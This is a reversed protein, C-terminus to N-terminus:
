SLRLVVVTFRRHKVLHILICGSYGQRHSCRGDDASVVSGSAAPSHTNLTSADLVTVMEDKKDSHLFGASVLGARGPDGCRQIM